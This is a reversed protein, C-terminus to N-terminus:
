ARDDTAYEPIGISAALGPDARHVSLGHWHVEGITITGGHAEVITKAVSLGM